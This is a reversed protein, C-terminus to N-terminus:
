TIELSYDAEVSTKLLMPATVSSPHRTLLLEHYTAPSYPACTLLSPSVIVFLGSSGPVM